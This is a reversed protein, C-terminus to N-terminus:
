MVMMRIGHLKSRLTEVRADITAGLKAVDSSLSQSLGDASDSMSSPNFSDEIINLVTAKKILDLLDPWKTPVNEMGARYRIQIMQPIFDGGGIATLLYTNLPVSLTNQTPVMNIKAARRDLRIWDIPVTFFPTSATPWVFVMSHVVIAPKTRLELFGWTDTDFFEPRFDYAPEWEVVNGAAELAAVEGPMAGNEPLMERPTFWTRLKRQLDAESSVLKEALYEDDLDQTGWYNRAAIMLRDRKISSIAGAISPFCSVIGAGIVTPDAVFVRFSEVLTMGAATIATCTALYWNGGIGGSVWTTATFEGVSQHALSIGADCTWSASAITDGDDIAPFSVVFDLSSGATMEAWLGGADKQFIASM